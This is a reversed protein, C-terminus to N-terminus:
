PGELICTTMGTGDPQLSRVIYTEGEITVATGREVRACRAAETRVILRPASSDVLAEDGIGAYERELVGTFRGGPGTVSSGGLGRLLAERDADSEFM